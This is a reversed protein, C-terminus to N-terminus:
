SPPMDTSSWVIEIHMTIGLGFLLPSAKLLVTLALLLVALLEGKSLSSSGAFPAILDGIALDCNTVDSNSHWTPLM